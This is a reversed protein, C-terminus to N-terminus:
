EVKTLNMRIIGKQISVAYMGNDNENNTETDIKQEATFEIENGILYGNKLDFYYTGKGTTSFTYKDILEKELNLNSINIESKIIACKRGEFEGNKEYTLTNAGKSILSSGNANLPLQIKFDSKEGIRNKTPLSFILDFQMNHQQNEFTGNTKLGQVLNNPSNNSITDIIEGKVNFSIMDMKLNKINVDALHKNKVVVELEGKGIVKMKELPKEKDFSHESNLILSYSYIFKKHDKFNWKFETLKNEILNKKKTEDKCSFLLM